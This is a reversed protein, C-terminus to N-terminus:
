EGSRIIKKSTQVKSISKGVPVFGKQIADLLKQITKSEWFEYRQYRNMKKCKILTADSMSYDNFAM